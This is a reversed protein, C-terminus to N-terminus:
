KTGKKLPSQPPRQSKLRYQRRLEPAKDILAITEVHGGALRRATWGDNNTADTAAGRELLLTVIDPQNMYAAQMLPTWGRRIDNQGDISAGKELLLKLVGVQGALVAYMLPTWDNKDCEGIRAGKKLLLKVMEKQGEYAAKTLATYGLKARDNISAAYKDLFETVAATDGNGAARCFKDVEKQSPTQSPFRKKLTHNPM